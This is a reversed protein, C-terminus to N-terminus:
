GYDRTKVLEVACRHDVVRADTSRGVHAAVDVANDVAACRTARSSAHTARFRASGQSSGRSPSPVPVLGATAHIRYAM